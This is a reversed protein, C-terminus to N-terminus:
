NGVVGPDRLFTTLVIRRAPGGAEGPEWRVIVAVRVGLVAGTPDLVQNVNWFRQYSVHRHFIDGLGLADVNSIGNWANPPELEAWDHDWAGAPIDSMPLEFEQDRDAIDDDNGTSPNTLRGGPAIEAVYDWTQIQNLLDQAISTARTMVRADNNMRSGMFELSIVGMAGVLLVALAVVAELITFGAERTRETAM